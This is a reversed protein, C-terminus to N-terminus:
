RPMRVKVLLTRLYAALTIRVMGLTTAAGDPL